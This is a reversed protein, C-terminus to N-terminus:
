RDAFELLSFNGGCVGCEDNELSGGWDGSCDPTCDNSPDDDCTGCNDEIGNGGCVGCADLGLCADQYHYMVDSDYNCAEDDMCGYDTTWNDDDEACACGSCNWLFTTELVECTYVSNSQTAEDCCLAGLPAECSGEDCCIIEENTNEELWECTYQINCSECDDTHNNRIESNLGFDIPIPAPLNESNSNASLYVGILFAISLFRM